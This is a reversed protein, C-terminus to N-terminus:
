ISQLPLANGKGGNRGHWVNRCGFLNRRSVREFKGREKQKGRGRKGRMKRGSFGWFQSELASTSVM